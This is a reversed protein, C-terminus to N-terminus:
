GVDNDRRRYLGRLSYILRLTVLAYWFLRTAHSQSIASAGLPRAGSRRSELQGAHGHQAAVFLTLMMELTVHLAQM